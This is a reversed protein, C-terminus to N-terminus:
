TNYTLWRPILNNMVGSKGTIILIKKIGNKSLNNKLTSFAEDLNMGHLDIILDTIFINKSKIKM